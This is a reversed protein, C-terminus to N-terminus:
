HLSEQKESPESLKAAHCILNCDRLPFFSHFVRWQAATPPSQRMGKQALSCPLDEIIIKPTEQISNQADIWVPRTRKKGQRAATNNREMTAAFACCGFWFL